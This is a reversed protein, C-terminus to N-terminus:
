RSRAKNRVGNEALSQRSLERQPARMRMWLAMM